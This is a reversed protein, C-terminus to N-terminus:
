SSKLTATRVGHSTNRDTTGFTSFDSAVTLFFFHPPSFDLWDLNDRCDKEALPEEEGAEESTLYEPEFRYLEIAGYTISIDEDDSRFNELLM